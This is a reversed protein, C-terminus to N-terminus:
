SVGAALQSGAVGQGSTAQNVLSNGSTVGRLPGGARLRELSWEASVPGYRDVELDLDNEIALAIADQLTLYLKGARILKYTRDSNKLQLPALKAGEYPRRFISSRPREVVQQPGQASLQSALCSGILVALASYINM